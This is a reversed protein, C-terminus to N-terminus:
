VVALRGDVACHTATRGARLSGLTYYYTLFRTSGPRCIMLLGPRRCWLWVATPPATLQRETLM